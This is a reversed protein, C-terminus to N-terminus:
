KLRRRVAAAMGALGTLMLGLTGPEPVASVTSTSYTFNDLANYGPSDPLTLTISTIPGTTTFGAFALTGGAISDSTSINTSFGDSLTVLISGTSSLLGGFNFGVAEVSPLTVTVIDPNVYDASFFGGGAYPSGYYGPDIVFLTSTSTFTTGSFVVPSTYNVFSGSPAIGNFNITTTSGSTAATYASLSSYVTDARCETSAIAM